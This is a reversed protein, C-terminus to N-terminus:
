GTIGGDEVTYESRNRVIILGSSSFCLLPRPAEFDHIFEEIEDGGDDDWEGGARKATTYGIRTIAGMESVWPEGGILDPSPYVLGRLPPRRWGDHGGHKAMYDRGARAPTRERAANPTREVLAAGGNRIRHVAAAVDGVNRVIAAVDDLDVPPLGPLRLTAM